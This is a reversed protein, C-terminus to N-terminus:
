RSFRVRHRQWRLVGAFVLALVGAARLVSTTWSSRNEASFSVGNAAAFARSREIEREREEHRKAEEEANGTVFRRVEGSFLEETVTAGVPVDPRLLSRAIKPNLRIQNASIASTGEFEGQFYMKKTMHMPISVATASQEDNVMQWDDFKLSTEMTILGGGSEDPYKVHATYESLLWDANRLFVLRAEFTRRGKDDRDDEFVVSVVVSESDQETIKAGKRMLLAEVSLDSHPLRRALLEHAADCHWAGEGQRIDVDVIGNSRRIIQTTTTGDYYTSTSTGNSLPEHDFWGKSSWFVESTLPTTIMEQAAPTTAGDTSFQTTFTGSFSRLHSSWSSVITRLETLRIEAQGFCPRAMTFCALVIILLCRSM